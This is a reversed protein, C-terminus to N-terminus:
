IPKINKTTIIITPRGKSFTAITSKMVFISNPNGTRQLRKKQVTSFQCYDCFYITKMRKKCSIGNTNKESRLTEDIKAAMPSKKEVKQRFNEVKQRIKEHKKTKLHNEYDYRRSWGHDCFECYYLKTTKETENKRM